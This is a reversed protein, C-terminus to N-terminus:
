IIKKRKVNKDGFPSGEFNNHSYYEIYIEKYQSGLHLAMSYQSETSVKRFNRILKELVTTRKDYLNINANTKKFVSSRNKITKSANSDANIKILKMNLKKNNYFYKISNEKKSIEYTIGKLFETLTLNENNEKIRIRFNEEMNCMECCFESQSKRNYNSVYGCVSCEKSTYAASVYEIEIGLDFNIMEFKEKIISKGFNQLIRNMRKSLKPSKFNLDELVIRSGIGLKEKKIM